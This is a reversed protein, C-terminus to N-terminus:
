IAKIVIIYMQIQLYLCYLPFKTFLRLLYSLIVIEIHEDSRFLKRPMNYISLSIYKTTIMRITDMMSIRTTAYITGKQATAALFNVLEIIIYYYFCYM